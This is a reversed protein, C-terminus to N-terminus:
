VQLQFMVPIQARKSANKMLHQRVPISPDVCHSKNRVFKKWDLELKTIVNLSSGIWKHLDQIWSLALM